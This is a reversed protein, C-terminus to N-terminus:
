REYKNEKIKIELATFAQKCKRCAVRDILGLKGQLVNIRNNLRRIAEDRSAITSKLNRNKEELSQITRKLTQTQRLWGVISEKDKSDTVYELVKITDNLDM